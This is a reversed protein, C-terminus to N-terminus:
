RSYVRIYVSKNLYVSKGTPCPTHRLQLTTKSYGHTFLIHVENQFFLLNAQTSFIIGVCDLYTKEASIEILSKRFSHLPLLGESTSHWLPSWNFGFLNTSCLVRSKVLLAISSGVFFGKKTISMFTIDLMNRRIVLPLFLRRSGVLLERIVIHIQLYIM